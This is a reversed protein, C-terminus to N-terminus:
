GGNGLPSSSSDRNNSSRSHFAKLGEGHSTQDSPLSSDPYDRKNGCVPDGGLRGRCSRTLDLSHATRKHMHPM